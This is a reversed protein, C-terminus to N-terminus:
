MKYLNGSGHTYGFRDTLQAEQETGQHEPGSRPCLIVLGGLSGDVGENLFQLASVIVRASKGSEFQTPEANFGFRCYRGQGDEQFIRILM